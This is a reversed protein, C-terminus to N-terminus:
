VTAPSRSPSPTVPTGSTSFSLRSSISPFQNPWQPKGSGLTPCHPQCTQKWTGELAWILVLALAPPWAVPPCWPLM